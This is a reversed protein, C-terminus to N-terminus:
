LSLERGEPEEWDAKGSHTQQSLPAFETRQAHCVLGLRMSAKGVLYAHSPRKLFNGM